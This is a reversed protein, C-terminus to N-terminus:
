PLPLLTRVQQYGPLRVVDGHHYKWLVSHVVMASCEGRYVCTGIYPVYFVTGRHLQEVSLWRMGFHLRAAGRACSRFKRALGRPTTYGRVDLQRLMYLVDRRLERVEYHLRGFEAFMEGM